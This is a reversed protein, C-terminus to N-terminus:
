TKKNEIPIFKPILIEKKVAYDKKIEDPFEFSTRTQKKFQVIFGNTLFDKGVKKAEEKVEEDLEKYEKAVSEIEARRTLKSDFEDMDLLEIGERNIDPLCIQMFPCKDCLESSYAIRDPLAKAKIAEYNKELRQLIWECMVYDLFIPFMKWHGRGDVILFFGQEMNNGFLYMQLQRIYKRLYPKRDFDEVSKIINFTNPNMFKIEFAFKQGNFRIAGDIMGTALIIKDKGYVTVPQQSLMVEFGMDQLDRLVRREQEKGEDFLAQLEENHIQKDEWNLVGYCIQRDCEGIDSLIPNKRPYRKIKESLTQFRRKDIEEILSEVRVPQKEKELTEM